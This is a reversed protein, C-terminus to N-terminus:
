MSLLITLIFTDNERETNMTGNYKECIMQITQLGIGTGKKYKAMKDYSNMIDILFFDQNRRAKIDIWKEGTEICECATIANDLANFFLICLDFDNIGIDKPIDVNLTIRIGRQQALALKDAFLADLAVNGTQSHYSLNSASNGFHHLYEKAKDSQHNEILQRLVILHNNLDHRFSRTMEYRLSAEKTYIQQAMLQGELLVKHEQQEIQQLVKKYSFLIVFLCLFSFCFVLLMQYNNFVSVVKNDVIVMENNYGVDFIAQSLLILLTLPMFLVFLYPLQNTREIVLYKCISKLILYLLLITFISIFINSIVFTVKNEYIGFNPLLYVLPALIGDCLTLVTVNLLSALFSISLNNQKQKRGLFYSFCSFFVFHVLRQKLGMVAFEICFASTLYNLVLFIICYIKRPSKLGMFKHLFQYQIVALAGSLIIFYHVFQSWFIENSVFFHEM